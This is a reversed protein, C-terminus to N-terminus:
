TKYTALQMSCIGEQTDSLREALSSIVQRISSWTENGNEFSGTV